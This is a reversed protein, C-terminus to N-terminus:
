VIIDYVSALRTRNPSGKETMRVFGFEGCEPVYCFESGCQACATNVSLGGMPGDKM